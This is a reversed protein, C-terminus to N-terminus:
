SVSFTRLSEGDNHPCGQGSEQRADMGPVLYVLCRARSSLNEKAARSADLTFAVHILQTEM